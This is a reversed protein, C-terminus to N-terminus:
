VLLFFIRSSPDAGVQDSVRIREALWKKKKKEFTCEFQPFVNECICCFLVKYFFFFCGVLVLLSQYLLSYLTIALPSIQRIIRNGPLVNM